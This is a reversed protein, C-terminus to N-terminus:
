YFCNLSDTVAWFISNGFVGDMGSEQRFAGATDFWADTLEPQHGYCVRSWIIGSQWRAPHDKGLRANVAEASPVTIRGPRRKQEDLRKRAALWSDTAAAPEADPGAPPTTAAPRSPPKPRGFKATVPPPVGGPEPEVRLALLVRDQFSAHAVLAVLAVVREDGLVDILRKVEADSVSSADLMMKRAFAAVIRDAEPLAAPDKM